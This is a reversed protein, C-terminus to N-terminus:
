FTLPLAVLLLRHTFSPSASIGAFVGTRDVGPGSLKAIITSQRPGTFGPLLGLIEVAFEQPASGAFVTRAVGKMGPRLDDLPFLASNSDTTKATTKVVKGQGSAVVSLSLFIVATLVLPIIPKISKM